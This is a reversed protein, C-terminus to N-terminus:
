SSLSPVLPVQWDIIRHNECPASAGSVLRISHLMDEERNDVAAIDEMDPKTFGGGRGISMAIFSGSNRHTMKGERSM